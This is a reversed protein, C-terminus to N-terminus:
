LAGRGLRKCVKKRSLIKTKNKRDLHCIFIVLKERKSGGYKESICGLCSWPHGLGGAEGPSRPLLQCRNINM